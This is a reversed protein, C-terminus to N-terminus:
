ICMLGREGSCIGVCGGSGGLHSRLVRKGICIKEMSSIIPKRILSPYAHGLQRAHVQENLGCRAPGGRVRSVYLQAAKLRNM